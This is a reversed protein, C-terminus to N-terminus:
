EPLAVPGDPSRCTFDSARRDATRWRGHGTVSQEDVGYPLQVEAGAGAQYSGKLFFKNKDAIQQADALTTRYLQNFVYKAWLPEEDPDFQRNLYSGFPELVPFIVRGYRSDITINEVYDFNGDPQRDLQPNLRDLGLVRMLPQNQLNAGEQLNPNDIGTLDDKYIIRLQFSQRAIQSANLSYINKMMLNWMPLQVNNRITSSKLLKLILVENDQRNQYDETLEGVQYKRGNLTYEYSVALIEDNRLPTVLSIYGLEPQFKYESETLRKAGRLLEYDVGKAFQFTGELQAAVQDVQRVTANDKLKTYLGNAQRFDAPFNANTNLPLLNPNTANYPRAEGLDAFGVINRLSATTNTRNTVYVELRTITVGSTLQPLNKLSREYNNRFYHSLFFHRNEEYNDVRIEFARQMAGGKLVIEEQKSRQQSAVLTAYLKGFRLQTKIGFLNQVGPILQSTLPWSINGAELAQIISPDQPQFREVEPRTLGGSNDGTGTAGLTPVGVGSAPNGLSPASPLTPLNPVPPRYNLKLVNEFNFSSKTDYNATLGLREGIKGNFNINIQENFILNGFKRSQVPIVPNDIFQHLYGFDLTVFGNPKFDIQNGGFLRDFIPPLDLKPILGRGSVASQGETRASFERWVNQRVRQNQERNYEELSM